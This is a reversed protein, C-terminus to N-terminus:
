DIGIVHVHGINEGILVLKAPMKIFEPLWQVMGYAYQFLMPNKVGEIPVYGKMRYVTDPLGRVWEEIQEQTFHVGEFEVLRSGLHMSAIPAKVIHQKDIKVTAFLNELLHYPVRGNTTQLIFAQPNFGQLEYVVQAQEAETLLDTKNALLLHAHRIQEMFLTRVQPTLTDRHLWLKSDAVTVIGKVNLQEAFIPSYVADLAEVPHAAGTTEIILVDFESDLLLSQIQAETKEAGSCCICGELMEKLPVDEEVAQSDFPLKGLENMIVAPKLGKEKLQRIVDTLMSTKGSGLFGSFLYVDKM